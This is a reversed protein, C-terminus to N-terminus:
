QLIRFKNNETIRFEGTQTIRYDFDANFFGADELDTIFFSQYEERGTFNINFGNFDSKGGGTTYNLAEAELGTYLGFIRYLGNRDRFILRYDKRLLKSINESQNAGQLELAISQNYFKGGADEEQAENANPNGNAYFKYITTNPFTGLVNGTVIIQSRSYQVYPFLYIESIGALSDKCKRNYGNLVTSVM